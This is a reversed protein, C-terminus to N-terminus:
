ETDAEADRYIKALRESEAASAPTITNNIRPEGELIDATRLGTARKERAKLIATQTGDTNTAVLFAIPLDRGNRITAIREFMDVHVITSTNSAVITGPQARGIQTDGQTVRVGSPGGGCGTLILALCIGICLPTIRTSRM